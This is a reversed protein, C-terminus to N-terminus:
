KDKEDVPFMSEWDALEQEMQQPTIRVASPDTFGCERRTCRYLTKGFGPLNCWVYAPSGEIPKCAARSAARMVHPDGKRDYRHLHLAEEAFLALVLVLGAIVLSKSLTSRAM